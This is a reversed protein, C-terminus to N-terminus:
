YDYVHEVTLNQEPAKVLFESLEQVPIILAVRKKGPETIIPQEFLERGPLGVHDSNTFATILIVSKNGAIDMLKIDNRALETAVIRFDFYRPLELVATGDTLRKVLTVKDFHAGDPFHDVQVQTTMLAPDYASRTALEIIKGYIAKIVYETSLAYRREWKRIMDDGTAPVTTWLKKLKDTFNYLYWPEQRIFDVYDQAVEAAFKDEATLKESSLLWSARGISNEYIARIGYEVTTSSAIVIIMTHYGPNSPYDQKVQEKIVDGYSGWLQGIHSVFPFDHAPHTKIDKAFEAPSHVLFWEPFTLFTQEVDRRHDPAIVSEPEAYANAVFSACLMMTVALTKLRSIAM